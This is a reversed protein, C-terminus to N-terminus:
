ENMCTDYIRQAMMLCSAEGAITAPDPKPWLCLIAYGTGAIGGTVPNVTVGGVVLGLIVADKGCSALDGVLVVRKINVFCENFKENARKECEEHKTNCNEAQLGYSDSKTLPQNAM